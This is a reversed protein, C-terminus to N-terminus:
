KIPSLSKIEVNLLILTKNSADLDRLINAKTDKFIGKLDNLLGYYYNIGEKLNQAFELLYKEQKNTMSIKMEEIKNKLFDIYIKLEKIFM